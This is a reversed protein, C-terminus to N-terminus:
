KGEEWVTKLNYWLHRKNQRFCKCLHTYLETTLVCENCIYEESVDCGWCHCSYFLYEDCINKECLVREFNLENKKKKISFRGNEVVDSSCNFLQSEM